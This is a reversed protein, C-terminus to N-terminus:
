AAIHSARAKQQWSSGPYPITQYPGAEDENWVALGLQEGLQYAREILNQKAVADSGRVTVVGQKRKRKVM